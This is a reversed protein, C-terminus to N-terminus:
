ASAGQQLKAVYSGRKVRGEVEVTFKVTIKGVLTGNKALRLEIKAPGDPQLSTTDAGLDLASEALLRALADTQEPGLHLRVKSGKANRADWAGEYLQGLPDIGEFSGEGLRFAFATDRESKGLSPVSIKQVGELVVPAACEVCPDEAPPDEGPRLAPDHRARAGSRVGRDRHAAGSDPHADARRRAAPGSGRRLRELM